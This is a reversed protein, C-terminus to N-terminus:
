LVLTWLLGVHLALLRIMPLKVASIVLPLSGVLALIIPRVLTLLLLAVIAPWREFLLVIRGFVNGRVFFEFVVSPVMVLSLGLRLILYMDRRRWDLGLGLRCLLLDFLWIVLEVHLLGTLVLQNLIVFLFILVLVAGFHLRTHEKELALAFESRLSALEEVDDLRFYGVWVHALEKHSVLARVAVLAFPGM